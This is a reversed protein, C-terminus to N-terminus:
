IFRKIYIEKFNYLSISLISYVKLLFSGNRLGKFEYVIFIGYYM